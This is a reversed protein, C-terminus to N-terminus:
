MRAPKSVIISVTSARAGFHLRATIVALIFSSIFANLHQVMGKMTAAKM